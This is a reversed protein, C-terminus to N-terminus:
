LSEAAMYADLVADPDAAYWGSSHIPNYEVVKMGDDTMALDVVYHRGPHWVDHYERAKTQAESVFAHQTTRIHQGDLRYTSATVAQGAIMWVRVEGLIEKPTSAWIETQPDINLPRLTDPTVVLGQISRQGTQDETRVRDGIMKIGSRPRIHKATESSAQLAGITTEFGDANLYATGLREAWVAADYQADDWFVWPRLADEDRAWQHVFLVSGMVLIPGYHDDGIPLPHRRAEDGSSVDHLAVGQRRAALAMPGTLHQVHNNQVVVLPKRVDNM